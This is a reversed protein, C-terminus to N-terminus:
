QVRTLVDSTNDWLGVIKVAGVKDIANPAPWYVTLYNYVGDAAQSRRFCQVRRGGVDFPRLAYYEGGNTIARRLETVDCQVVLTTSKSGSGYSSKENLVQARPAYKSIFSKTPTSDHNYGWLCLALVGGLALTVLIRLYIRSGDTM